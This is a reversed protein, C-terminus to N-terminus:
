ELNLRFCDVCSFFFVFAVFRMKSRKCSFKEAHITIHRYIFFILYKTAGIYGETQFFNEFCNLGPELWTKM